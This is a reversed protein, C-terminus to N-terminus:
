IGLVKTMIGLCGIIVGAIVGGYKDFFDMRIWIVGLSAVTTVLLMTGITCVAFVINVLVVSPFGLPTAAFTLPLLAVCPTLGIIAVLGYGAKKDKVLGHFHPHRHYVWDHYHFHDHHDTQYEGKRHKHDDHSEKLHRDMDLHEYVQHTHNGNDHTHTHSSIGHHHHGGRKWAWIAYGFGFVMLLICTANEAINAYSESLEKSAFVGIMGIAISTGVHGIGALTALALIRTINWGNARGVMVFPFWHDPSVAHTTALLVTGTLIVILESNLM